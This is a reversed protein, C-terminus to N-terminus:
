SKIREFVSQLNLNCNSTTLNQKQFLACLKNTCWKRGNSLSIWVRYNIPKLCNSILNSRIPQSCRRRRLNQNWCCVFLCIFLYGFLFLFFNFVCVCFPFSICVCLLLVHNMLNLQNTAAPPNWTYKWRTGSVNIAMDNSIILWALCVDHPIVLLLISWSCVMLQFITFNRTKRNKSATKLIPEVVLAAGKRLLYFCFAALMIWSWALDM